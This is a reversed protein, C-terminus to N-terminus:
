HFDYFYKRTLSISFENLYRDELFIIDVSKDNTINIVEQVSHYLTIKIQKEFNYSPSYKFIENTPNPLLIQFQKNKQTLM